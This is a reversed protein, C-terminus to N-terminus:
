KLGMRLTKPLYKNKSYQIIKIKRFGCREYARIARVNTPRVELYIKSIRLRKAKNMLIKIAKSGYGKGWYKKEGIIIQTEYRESRRKVLSIHGITKNKLVIMFHYDHKTKLINQFYKDVNKDSIRRLIGSTLKLLETDKWWKAFYSKDSLKIKRLLIINMIFLFPALSLIVSKWDFENVGTQRPHIQAPSPFRM